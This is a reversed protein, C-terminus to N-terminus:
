GAMLIILNGMSDRRVRFNPPVVTTSDMDEVILPGQVEDHPVAFRRVIPTSVLGFEGGFYAERNSKEADMGDGDMVFIGSAKVTPVTARLRLNVLQVPEDPASHGYTQYHAAHFSTKAQNVDDWSLVHGNPVSISLEHSQGSYRQDIFRQLITPQLHEPVRRARNELEDFLSSILEIDPDNPYQYSAVYDNRIDSVQLGVASFLGPNVPVIVREVDFHRAILAAHMPGAGGYAILVFNRPDRGREISVGRIAQSMNTNALTHIGFAADLRSMGLPGAVQVDIADQAATLDVDQSGGAISSANLYGLVLNADTVTVQTGGTRYCVPGPVAGASRPGVRPGGGQDIWFLSGGGAGVEAIDISPVRVTYGGGQVFLRSHNMEGGVEHEPAEFTQGDEILSAKATTGGMDFAIANLVGLETALGQAAIVGAAPGSEILRVPHLRSTHSDLLSGNSQMVQVECELALSRLGDDLSELYRWVAPRIYANVVATSFREYEKVEPLIESSTTIHIEPLLNALKEAVLEENVPNRYSNLFCIALSEVEREAVTGALAEIAQIDPQRLVAGDSNVREDFEFRLDRPALPKPKEFGIDFLSPRRLRAIELVDRFGTTTILATRAGRQELVANSAVTTGHAIREIDGYDVEGGKLLDAMGKIIAQEFHPPTSSIKHSRRVGDGLLIIDTFTGGIDVALVYNSM